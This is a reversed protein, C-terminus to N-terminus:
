AQKAAESKWLSQYHVFDSEESLYLSTIGMVKGKQAIIASDCFPELQFRGRPRPGPVEGIGRSLALDALAPQEPSHQIKSIELPPSEVVEILLRYWHKVM